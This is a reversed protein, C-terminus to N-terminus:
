EQRTQQQGDSRKNRKASPVTGPFDGVVVGAVQKVAGLPLAV